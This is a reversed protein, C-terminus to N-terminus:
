VEEYQRSLLSRAFEPGASALWHLMSLNAPSDGELVYDVARNSQVFLTLGANTFLEKELYSLGGRGSLYSDAGMERCINILLENRQGSTLLSSARVIPTTIGLLLAVQEFAALDLDALNGWNSQYIPRLSSEANAWGPAKAYSYSLSQWHKRQWSQSNDIAVKNISQNFRGRNFVPVTLWFLVKARNMILARNQWERKVYQVTDLIVFADVSAM